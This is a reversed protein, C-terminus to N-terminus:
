TDHTSAMPGTSGRRSPSSEGRPADCFKRLKEVRSSHWAWVAPPIFYLVKIGRRKAREALRLNFGPYDIPIVLDFTERDLLAELEKMLGIHKPISSLVEAFGFASYHEM